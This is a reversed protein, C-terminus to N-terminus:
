DITLGPSASSMLVPQVSMTLVTVTIIIMIIVDPKEGTM